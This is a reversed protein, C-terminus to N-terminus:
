KAWGQLKNLDWTVGKQAQKFFQSIVFHLINGTRAYRNEIKKLLYLRDKDPHALAVKKHSGYYAFYYKRACQELTSRRSFSWNVDKLAKSKAETQSSAKIDDFLPLQIDKM